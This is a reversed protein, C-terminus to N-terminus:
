TASTAGVVSSARWCPRTNASRKAPNGIEMPTSDRMVWGAAAFSIRAPMARPIHLDGDARMRQERFRDIEVIEAQQNNILLLMEADRLLFPQFLKATVDM